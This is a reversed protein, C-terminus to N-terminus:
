CYFYNRRGCCDSSRSLLALLVLFTAEDGITIYLYINTERRQKKTFKGQNGMIGRLAHFGRNQRHKQFKKSRKGWRQYFNDKTSSEDCNYNCKQTDENVNFNLDAIELCPVSPVVQRSGFVFTRCDYM